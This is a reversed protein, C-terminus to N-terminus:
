LIRGEHVSVMIVAHSAKSPFQPDSATTPLGAALMKEKLRADATKFLEQARNPREAMNYAKVDFGRTEIYFGISHNRAAALDRQRKTLKQIRKSPFEDDAWSLVKVDNVEGANGARKLLKDIESKASESLAESGPQFDVEVFYNSGMEEAAKNTIDRSVQEELHTKRTVTEDVKRPPHLCGIFVSAILSPIAFSRNVHGM